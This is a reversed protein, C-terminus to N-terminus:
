SFWIQDHVKEFPYYSNYNQSDVTFMWKEDDPNCISCDCGTCVCPCLYRAEFLEVSTGSINKKTLKKM